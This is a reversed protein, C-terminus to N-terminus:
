YFLYNHFIKCIKWLKFVTSAPYRVFSPMYLNSAWTNKEPIYIEFHVGSNDNGGFVYIQSGVVEAIAGQRLYKMSAKTSWSDSAIDYEFTTKNSGGSYGGFVNFLFLITSLRM